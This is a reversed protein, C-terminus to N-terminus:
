VCERGGVGCGRPDGEDLRRLSEVMTASGAVLVSAHGRVADALVIKKGSLTEGATAPM